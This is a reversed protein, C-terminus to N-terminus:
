LQEGIVMALDIYLNGSDVDGDTSFNLNGAHSTRDLVCIRKILPVLLSIQYLVQTLCYMLM